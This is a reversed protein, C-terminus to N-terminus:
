DKKDKKNEMEDRLEQLTMTKYNQPNKKFDEELDRQAQREEPTMFGNMELFDYHSEIGNGRSVIPGGGSGRKSPGSRGLLFVGIVLWVLGILIIFEM